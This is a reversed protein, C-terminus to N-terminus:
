TLSRTQSFLRGTALLFGIALLVAIIGAPVIGIMQHM